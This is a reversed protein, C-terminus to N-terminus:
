GVPSTYFFTNNSKLCMDVPTSYSPVINAGDTRNSQDSFVTYPQFIAPNSVTESGVVTTWGM